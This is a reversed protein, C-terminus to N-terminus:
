DKPAYKKNLEIRIKTASEQMEKESVGSKQVIKQVERLAELAIQKKSRIQAKKGKVRVEVSDGVELDLSELLGKPLTVQRRPRIGLTYNM